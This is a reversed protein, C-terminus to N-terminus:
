ELESVIRKFEKGRHEFNSFMDFSAFMPSLLVKDGESAQDRASRVAQAMDCHDELEVIGEFAEHLKKRVVDERTLVIMKKVKEKVLPRLSVLDIDGKDHGGCIMVIPKSVHRLAWAGSDATTAKSDNIYDVGNFSRVLEQRHEVGRFTLFVNKAVDVPVGFASCAAMAALFNPNSISEDFHGPENYYVVKGKLTRALAQHRADNFNLVAFDEQTQNMFIRTKATFYEDLDKHRDLHNQSFNLFVAVRPKFSIITEMQFSSVELAVLDSPKLTLVNESFPSGINGCLCVERGAARLVEAILTTTTTKGNSGTVAIVDCPCCKWAFEIEGLVPIGKEKAWRVVDSDARVGPSLVILDSQQIFQKTHGDSELQCRSLLGRSSLGEEIKARPSIDSVKVVGNLRLALQASAIGSRGLGVVTVVKNQLSFPM